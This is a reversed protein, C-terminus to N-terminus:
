PSASNFAIPNTFGVLFLASWMALSFHSHLVTPAATHHPPNRSQCSKVHLFVAKLKSWSSFAQLPQIQGIASPVLHLERGNPPKVELATM